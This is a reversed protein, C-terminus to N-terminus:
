LYVCSEEIRFYISKKVFMDSTNYRMSVDLNFEILYSETTSGFVTKFRVIGRGFKYYDSPPYCIHLGIKRVCLGIERKKSCLM